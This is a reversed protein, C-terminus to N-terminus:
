IPSEDLQMKGKIWIFKGTMINRLAVINGDSFTMEIPKDADNDYRYVYKRAACDYISHLRENQYIIMCRLPSPLLEQQPQQVQPREQPQVPEVPKGKIPKMMPYNAYRGILKLKKIISCGEHIKKVPKPLVRISSVGVRSSPSPTRSPNHIRIHM